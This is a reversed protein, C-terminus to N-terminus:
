CLQDVMIGLFQGPDPKKEWFLVIGPKEIQYNLTWGSGWVGDLKKGFNLNEAPVCM